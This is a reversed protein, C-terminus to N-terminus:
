VSRAKFDRIFHAQDFYGLEQALSSWSPQEGTVIRECAEHVRYRRVVWKPGVGVHRRFLRDLTRTSVGVRQALEGVRAVSPDARAIEVARATIQGCEDVVPDFSRLFETIRTIRADDTSANMVEAELSAGAQGFVAAVRLERDRLASVDRGLIPFFGAPRFKVGLVWGDGALRAIFRSSAVGHVGPRHTGFVLNVNPHPLTEQAFPAAALLSWRVSWFGDVVDGLDVVPALRHLTFHAAGARPDLIGHSPATAM